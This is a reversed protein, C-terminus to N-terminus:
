ELITLKNAAIKSIIHNIGMTIKPAKQALLKYFIRDKILEISNM